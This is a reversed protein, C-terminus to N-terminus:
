GNNSGGEMKNKYVEKTNTYARFFKNKLEANNMSSIIEGVPEVFENLFRATKTKLFFKNNVFPSDPNAKIAQLLSYCTKPASASAAIRKYLSAMDPTFFDINQRSNIIIPSFADVFDCLSKGGLYQSMLDLVEYECDVLRNMSSLFMAKLADIEEYDLDINKIQAFFQNIRESHRVPAAFADYYALMYMAPANDIAVSLVDLAHAKALDFRKETFYRTCLEIENQVKEDSNFTKRPFTVISNCFECHGKRTDYDIDVPAGCSTCYFVLADM